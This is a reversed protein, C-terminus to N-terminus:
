LGSFLAPTAPQRLAGLPLQPSPSQPCTKPQLIKLSVTSHRARWARRIKRPFRQVLLLHGQAVVFVMRKGARLRQCCCYSPTRAAAHQGQVPTLHVSASGLAKPSYPGATGRPRIESGQVGGQEGPGAGPAEKSRSHANTNTVAEQINTCGWWPDWRQTDEPDETDQSLTRRDCAPEKSHRRKCCIIM